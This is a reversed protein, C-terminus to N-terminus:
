DVSLRLRPPTTGTPAVGYSRLAFGMVQSFLPAAVQGGFYGKAGTGQLIVATVFRPADAPALGIFSSTYTGDYYGQRPGSVAVRQATGTKGAVRYGPIVAKPATGQESVVAELMSRIQAAVAASIVRKKVPAPAPVVHGASDRQSRVINPQVRVGDNALTAYVSAVQLVNTAVGQGIPINAISTGSWDAPKPVIGRSEGPLGLGTKAGFGFAKMMDYLRQAGVQQAVKVTGINSSKALVGAFTLHELGHEEADHLIKDAVRYTPPVEIVTSPTVVGAQLAAAATIVKNVSGPEFVDSLAPNGMLGGARLDDPDYTPATALALVEGTKVDMVAITGNKAQTAQVQAAILKQAYWQLDRDLTLSVDKGPVADVHSDASTPIVRGAVDFRAVTRGPEGALVDQLALEIGAKGVGEFDTFGLVGAALQRSPHVRQTTSEQGIGPLELEMVKKALAPDVTRKLYVFDKKSALKAETQAVDLGLVPAVAAAISAPDCPATAGPQCVAKAITRPEAYVNKAVVSLALPSGHRDLIQGRVAPITVEHTRQVGRDAYAAPQLGQLQVLRGALLLVVAGLLVLGSRLRVGPRGLPLRQRRAPPRKAAPRRAAPGAAPRGATRPAPRGSPRAAPRRPPRPPTV